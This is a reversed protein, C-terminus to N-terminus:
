RLRALLDPAKNDLLHHSLDVNALFGRTGFASRPDSCSISFFRDAKREKKTKVKNLLRKMELDKFALVVPKWIETRAKVGRRAAYVPYLGFLMYVDAQGEVYRHVFNNFWFNYKFLEKKSRKPIETANYSRSGKVQVTLMKHNKTNVIVFDVGKQQRSVPIFVSLGESKKFRKQVQLITEYESYPLSFIGDM